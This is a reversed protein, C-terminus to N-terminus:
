IYMIFRDQKKYFVLIGLILTCLTISGIMLHEDLSPIQNYLIMERLMQIAQTLPNIEVFPRITGPLIDIPYFVPTLFNLATLVISYLHALDRFFVAACSLILSVGVAFFFLYFIPIFFLLMTLHFGTKTAIMVLIVALFSTFLNILSFINKSFPFMYKPFYVKKILSANSYISGLALSTSESFFNFMVSGCLFYVPFNPINSKFLKSFVLTLIIMTLLPNLLSWVVGLLSRKYKVKFDRSVLQILLYRYKMFNNIYTPVAQKM